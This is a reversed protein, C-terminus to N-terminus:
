RAGGAIELNSGTMYSSDDSLLFGVVDAVETLSGYRGIPIQSIMQQAVAAVTDPFHRSEAKAQGAVQSDWMIGPGIFGPSVSNVRINFEALDKAASSTLALVAGKSAAYAPMNPAGGVGAMSAMNVISGPLGLSRLTRAFVQLVNLVGYVNVEFVARMTEDSVDLVSEFKGQRGANNFLKTAVIQEEALREFASNVSDQSCVDFHDVAVVSGSRVAECQLRTEALQVGVRELDFLVVDSGVSVLKLAAARGIDGAAGTIIAVPAVSSSRAAM